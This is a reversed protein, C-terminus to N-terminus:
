RHMDLPHYAEMQLASRRQQEEHEPSAIEDADRWEDHASSYGIYHVKIRDGDTELVELPYLREPDHRTKEARPLRTALLERYNKEPCNRLNYAM